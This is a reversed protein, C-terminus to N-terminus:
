TVLHLLVIGEFFRPIQPQNQTLTVRSSLLHRKGVAVDYKIWVRYIARGNHQRGHLCQTSM